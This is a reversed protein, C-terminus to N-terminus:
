QDGAPRAPGSGAVPRRFIAFLTSVAALGIAIGICDYLWDLPEAQRNFLPQTVEDFGGFVALAVALTAIGRQKTRRATLWTAAALAALTAYAAFHLTKDSPPNRGLLEEPRPHHTAYVLIGTFALTAVAFARALWPRAPPPPAPPM